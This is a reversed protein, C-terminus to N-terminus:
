LSLPRNNLECDGIRSRIIFSPFRPYFARSGGIQTLSSLFIAARQSPSAKPFLRSFLSEFPAIRILNPAGLTYPPLVLILRSKSSFCLQSPMEWPLSDSYRESSQSVIRQLFSSDLLLGFVHIPERTLFFYFLPLFLAHRKRPVDGDFFCAAYRCIPPCSCRLASPFL